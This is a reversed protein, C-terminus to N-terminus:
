TMPLLLSSDRDRSGTRYLARFEIGKYQKRIIRNAPVVSGSGEKEESVNRAGSRPNPLGPCEGRAATEPPALTM